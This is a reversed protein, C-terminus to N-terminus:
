QQDRGPGAGGSAGAAGETEQSHSGSQSVSQGLPGSAKSKSFEALTDPNVVKVRDRNLSQIYISIMHRDILVIICICHSASPLCARSDSRSSDCKRPGACPPGGPRRRRQQHLPPGDRGCPGGAGGDQAGAPVRVDAAGAGGGEAGRGGARGGRAPDRSICIPRWMPLPHFLYVSIRLYFPLSFSGRLSHTSSRAPSSACTLPAQRCSQLLVAWVSCQAM